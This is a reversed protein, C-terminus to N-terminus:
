EGRRLRRVGGTQGDLTELSIVRGEGNREFRIRRYPADQDFFLDASLAQLRWAPRRGARYLLVGEAAEISSGSYDGVYPAPDVVVAPAELAELTWRAEVAVPGTLRTQQAKLAAKWATNLADGATAEIDPMVGTGEWNSGTIPNVPSGNSVFITFGSPTSVPGGPNAAGATREGVVTGRRAAQLTYSFGEAASGTRGSTVIFVPVDTRPSPYTERPGESTQGDRGQFVNYINSGPAVFASVLYGVMAPSGGGNNRLDFIVADAGSVMQLVADAQRRAPDGANDFDAFMRMDIVAINGPLINVSQFGQGRRAVGIEFPVPELEHSTPAAPIPAAAPDRWTINFHNDLPKMRRTLAVELDRPDTRSDYLGEAAEARLAEAIERGRDADFYRDEVAQAIQSVVTRPAISQAQAPAAILVAAVLLPFMKM